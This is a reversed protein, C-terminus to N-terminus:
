MLRMTVLAIGDNESVIEGGEINVDSDQIRGLEIGIFTPEADTGINNNTIDVDAGDDIRIIEIGRSRGGAATITNGDIDVDSNRVTNINIGNTSTNATSDNNIVNSSINLTADSVEGAFQIGDSEPNTGSGPVITLHSIGSPPTFFGEASVDTNRITNGTINVVSSDDVNEEFHIGDEVALINSNNAITVTSGDTITDGSFLIGNQEAILGDINQISVSSADVGGSFHLGNQGGSVVGADAVNVSSGNSIKGFEAGDGKDGVLWSNSLINVTGGDVTGVPAGATELNESGIGDEDGLILSNTINLTGSINNEINLGHHGVGEGVIKADTINVEGSINAIEVGNKQGYYTGEGINLTGGAQVDKKVDIAEDLTSTALIGGGINVTGGSKVGQVLNIADNSSDVTGGSINVEAGNAVNDVIIGKFIPSAADGIVNDTINVVYGNSLSSTAIGSGNSGAIENNTINATGANGSGALIAAGGANAFTNSDVLLGVAGANRAFVANEGGDFSINSISVNSATVDLIRTGAAGQITAADAGDINVEKNVNISDEIFTGAALNIDAGSAAVDIGDQISATTAVNVETGEGALTQSAALIIDANLNITLDNNADQDKLTLTNSNTQASTDIDVDVNITQEAEIDFDAGALGATITGVNGANVTFNVPDILIKADVGLVDFVSDDIDVEKGSFEVFANDGHAKIKGRTIAKEDGYIYTNSERGDNTIEATAALEVTEGTINVDGGKTAGSAKAKGKVSVKGANGGGLIIKGGKQTASSVDVVGDLNIINDAVDKAALATMQVTGGAANIEGTNELYADALEGEVEVEFLGDGYLDVTVSEGAAFAVKGLKANIVGANKATPAVFAAVGGEAITIEAGQQIEVSADGLDNFTAKDGDFSVSDATSAAFSHMDIRASGTILVGNKNLVINSASGEFVGEIHSTNDSTDRHVFIDGTRQDVYVGAESGINFGGHYDAATVGRNNQTIDLRNDSYEYTASGKTVEAGQPLADTAVQAVAHGSALLGAATLASTTLLKLNSFTGKNAANKRAKYTSM